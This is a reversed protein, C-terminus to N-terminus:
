GRRDDLKTWPDRASIRDGITEVYRVVGSNGDVETFWDIYDCVPEVYRAGVTALVVARSNSRVVIRLTVVYRWVRAELKAFLAGDRDTMRVHLVLIEVITQWVGVREERILGPREGDHGRARGCRM